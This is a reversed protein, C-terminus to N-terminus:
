FVAAKAELDKATEEAVWAMVERAVEKVEWVAGAVVLGMVAEARVMAVVASVPKVAERVTRAAVLVM